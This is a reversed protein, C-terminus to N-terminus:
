KWLKLILNYFKFSWIKIEEIINKELCKELFEKWFKSIFQDRRIPKKREKLFKVMDNFENKVEKENIVEDNKVEKKKTIKKDKRSKIVKEVIKKDKRMQDEVDNENVNSEFIQINSLKMIKSEFLRHPNHNKRLTVRRKWNLTLWKLEKEKNNHNSIVVRKEDNYKYHIFEKINHLM